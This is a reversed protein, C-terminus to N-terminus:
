ALESPKIDKSDSPEATSPELLNQHFWDPRKKPMEVVRQKKWFDDTKGEKEGEYIVVVDQEVPSLGLHNQIAEQMEKTEIKVKEYCYACLLGAEYHGGCNPCMLINTKPVPPKWVYDPHGFRRKLRREITHRRKPAAWLFGNGIIDKLSFQSPNNATYSPSLDGHYNIACLPEPPFGHGFIIKLTQEIRQFASSLRNIM